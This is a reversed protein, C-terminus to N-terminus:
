NRRAYTRLRSQFHIEEASPQRDRWEYEVNYASIKVSSYDVEKQVTITGDEQIGVVGVNDTKLIVSDKCRLKSCLRMHNLPVIVETDDGDFRVVYDLGTRRQVIGSYYHQDEAWLAFVRSGLIIGESSRGPGPKSKPKGTVSTKLKITENVKFRSLQEPNRNGYDADRWFAQIAYPTGLFAEKPEWTWDKRDYGDWVTLYSWFKKARRGGGKVVDVRAEVIKEVYFLEEPM